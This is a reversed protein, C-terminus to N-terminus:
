FDIEGDFNVQELKLINISQCYFHLSDSEYDEIEYNINELGNKSLDIINFGSIQYIIEGNLNLKISKVNLFEIEIKLFKQSFDPWIKKNNKSQVYGKIIVNGNFINLESIFCLQCKTWDQIFTNIIDQQFDTNM